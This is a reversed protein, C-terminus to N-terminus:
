LNQRLADVVALRSVRRAPLIAALVTAGLGIAAATAIQGPALRIQATYGIETGPLPPMAIGLASLGLAAAAGALAGLCAGSLGLLLNELLLLRRVRAGRNGIAMMTGFEGVREFISMNVSNAVSLLVMITVIGQLVGFQRQYLEVTSRYFENLQVWTKVELDADAAFGQQLRAALAETDETRALLAVVANAGASGLLEQAATLPLRLAHADYDKSFSRFVGVVELEVSNLAGEPTNALLTAREGPKLKLARALGEGLVMGYRDRGELQRGAVLQLRSGILAEAAPEVGEGVISLDARGNNLLGSFNLRSALVRIEPMAALSRRLAAPDAILYKEPAGGGAAFYGNRFIQLHGSQSHILSEGLQDYVDEIWGAALILGAVGASIAALTMATRMKHRWVNRAALAIM